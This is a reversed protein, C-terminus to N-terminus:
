KQRAGFVMLKSTSISPVKWQSAVTTPVGAVFLAWTMGILGEGDGVRGRATECASLVVLEAKLNMGMLEWAELIGDGRADSSSALLIYSYLPNQDNFVGHTAFHLVSYKGIEAKVVDERAAAGIRIVSRENGYVDEALAQVERETEPLPIFATNRRQVGVLMAGRIAPNGVAYLVPATTPSGAGQGNMKLASSQLGQSRKRMEVLVQISPAYDIAFLELLYKDDPTQLAQFPLNWLPGDPVIVLGSRNKLYREGPTVLLDYLERGSQRFGPHNSSVLNRYKEVLQSLERRNIRISAVEVGVQSDSRLDKTLAFLFTEEDTVVYEFIAAGDSVLPAADHLNLAAFQARKVQLEPHIGYLSAQFAEYRARAKGLQNEIEGIQRENPQQVMREARLRANVSVVESYLRREESKEKDTMSTEISVRGNRLVDLLVRAKAREACVLAEAPKRQGILLSVLAHYPGLRNQFFRQHEQEGGSVRSRLQEITTIAAVLSKQALDPQRLSTQAKGKVTLALYSIEPLGAQNALSVARDSFAVANPYDGKSCYVEGMQWLAAAVQSKDGLEEAASLCRNLCALALEYKGKLRYVSGLAIQSDVILGRSKAREATSLSEQLVLLAKDVRGQERNAIGLDVLITAIGTLDGLEKAIQLSQDLYYSMKDYDGEEAYLIGLGTLLDQLRKKQNLGKVLEAAQNYSQFAQAYNGIVSQVHGIYVLSDALSEKDDLETALSFSKQLFELAQHYNGQWTYISGLTLLVSVNREKDGSAVALTLSQESYERAKKYDEIALYTKGLKDLVRALRTKDNLEEAMQKELRYLLLSRSSDSSNYAKTLEEKLQEWLRETILERHTRLLAGSEEESKASVLAKFLAEESTIQPTENPRGFSIPSILILCLLFVPLVRLRSRTCISSRDTRRESYSDAGLRASSQDIYVLPIKKRAVVTVRWDAL